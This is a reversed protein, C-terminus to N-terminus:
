AIPYSVASTVVMDQWSKNKLLWTSCKVTPGCCRTSLCTDRQAIVADIKRQIAVSISIIWSYSCPRHQGRPNRLSPGRWTVHSTDFPISCNCHGLMVSCILGLTKGNISSQRRSGSRM